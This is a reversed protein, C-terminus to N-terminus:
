TLPQRRCGNGFWGSHRGGPGAFSTRAPACHDGTVWQPAGDGPAIMGDKSVAFKLQVFPRKQRMRLLHGATLWLADDALVDTEVQIGAETLRKIGGGAVDPNPDAIAVVVRDIGAAIIADACPTTKGFHSCPELTVYLTAGHANDGARELALREGHPTGGDNTRGRGLVEVGDDTKRVIVCGVSPNNSTRGLGQAGLRVALQMFRHDQADAM